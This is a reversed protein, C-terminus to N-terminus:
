EKAKNVKINVVFTHTYTEPRGGAYYQFTDIPLEHQLDM